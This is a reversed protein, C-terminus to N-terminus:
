RANYRDLAGNYIELAREVNMNKITNVFTDWNDLSETGFIFKLVMEDVYTTIENNLTALEKSEEQLPTVNPLIYDSATEVLWTTPCEKVTPLQLYQEIYNGDQVFPGNYNARIHKALSQALPWGDPNNLVTDTYTPVGDKMEYSVGEVGFNYLNHGAEGYGYDLLRAALEVNKCSTTIAVSVDPFANEIYGMKAPKGKELSPVTTPVLLYDPNKAQATTMFVQMRSAAWGISAGAKDTTMKSTVQDGNLSAMDKDLLGETYWQNMTTLYEKFNDEMPGYHVKGDDGVYYGYMADYAYSIINKDKFNAWDFCFPAEAGKKEKFATLATHWEDVTTPVELGLEDLWDKRIFGGVTVRLKEEGRIFPFAFYNGDDTKIMKDVEPHEALYAKLNPCYQDIVDNLPIIVGDRIAKEPGGPYGKVWNYEMLDPLNGDAIILNFQEKEQGAAPHQFEIDVGTQEQLAKGFETDGLNTYNAAANSNLQVWYTLKGGEALPYTVETPTGSAQAEGTTEKGAAATTTEKESGGAAATTEDKGGGCAALMSATLATTTLLALGKKWSKRM